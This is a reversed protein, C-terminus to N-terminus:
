SVWGKGSLTFFYLAQFLVGFVVAIMTACTYNPTLQIDDVWHQAVSVNTLRSIIATTLGPRNRHGCIDIQDKDPLDRKVAGRRWM